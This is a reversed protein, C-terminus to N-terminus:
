SPRSVIGTVVSLHVESGDVYFPATTTRSIQAAVNQVDDTGPCFVAFEDGGVRALMSNTPFTRLLRYAFAVLIRDGADHGLSNTVTRFEDIDVLLLVGPQHREHLEVLVEDLERLLHQRNNLGTLADHAAQHELAQELARQEGIDHIPWSAALFLTVIGTYFFVRQRRTVAEEGRPAYAGALRRLGYEYFLVLAAVLGITDFHLHFDIVSATDAATQGLLFGASM